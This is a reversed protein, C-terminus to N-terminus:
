EAHKTAVSYDASLPDIPGAARWSSTECANEIDLNCPLPSSCTGPVFQEAAHYIMERALGPHGRGSRLANAIGLPSHAGIQSVLLAQFVRGVFRAAFDTGITADRSDYELLRRGHGVGVGCDRGDALAGSKEPTRHCRLDAASADITQWFTHGLENDNGFWLSGAVEVAIAGYEIGTQYNRAWIGNQDLPLEHDIGFLGGGAYATPAALLFTLWLCKLM